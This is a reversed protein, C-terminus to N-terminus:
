SRYIEEWAARASEILENAPVQDHVWTHHEIFEQFDLEDLESDPTEKRCTPCVFKRAGM